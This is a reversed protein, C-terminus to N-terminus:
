LFLFAFHEERLMLPFSSVLGLRAGNLRGLHEPGLTQASVPELGDRSIGSGRSRGLLTPFGDGHGFFSAPLQCSPPPSCHWPPLCRELEM